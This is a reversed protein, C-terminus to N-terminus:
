GRKALIKALAVATVAAALGLWTVDVAPVWTVGGDRVVFAGVPRAFVGFGAGERVPLAGTDDGGGGGGGFVAAAPIVVTGDREVPEGYVLRASFIKRAASAVQGLNM